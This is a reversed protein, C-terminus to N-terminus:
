VEEFHKNVGIWRMLNRKCLVRDSYGNEKMFKDVDIRHVEGRMSTYIFKEM